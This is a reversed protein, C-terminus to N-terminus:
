PASFLWEFDDVSSIIGMSEGTDKLGLHSIVEDHLGLSADRVYLEGTRNDRIARQPRAGTWAVLLAFERLGPECADILNQQEAETLIVIRAAGVNKFPKVRHWIRDDLDTHDGSNFALNFAAFASSRFRNATDRSRREQEIEEEDDIDQAVRVMSNRWRNLEATTLEALVKDGFKPLLHKRVRGEADKAATQGKEARLHAIYDELAQNVTYPAEDEGNAAIAVEQEKELFWARAREQAQTFTLVDGGADLADDAPGLAHTYRGAAVVRLKAIWTGGQPGLRRYGIHRGSAIRAWYPERRPKLTSRASRTDLKPSRVTRAIPAKRSQRVALQVAFMYAFTLSRVITIVYLKALLKSLDDTRLHTGFYLLM